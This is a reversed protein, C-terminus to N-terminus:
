LARPRQLCQRYLDIMRASIEDWALERMTARRGNAGAEARRDPDELFTCLADAITAPVSDVWAGARWEEIQPWPSGKTAVVPLGAAMAEGVVLGFNESQSALAFVDAAAYAADRDSGELHGAFVVAGDLAAHLHRELTQRYEAAGDGAVVLVARPVRKTVITMADGLTEIGKKPHLRGLSLVVLADDPIALRKRFNMRADASLNPLDIGNPVTVVPPGFDLALLDAQEAGSTAHHATARRQVFREITWYSAVKLWSGNRLSWPSLMGRPTSIYPRHQRICALAGAWNLFNWCGHLHVLDYSDIARAFYQSAGRGRFYTAPVALPLYTVPINDYRREDSAELGGATTTVVHVDCGRAQLGRCLGLVSRPPGGYAFAPAFYPTVHLVRM